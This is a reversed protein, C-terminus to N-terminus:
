EAVKTVQYLTIIENFHVVYKTEFTVPPDSKENKM